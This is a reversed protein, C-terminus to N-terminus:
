AVHDHEATAHRRLLLELNRRLQQGHITDGPGAKTSTYTHASPTLGEFMAESTSFIVLYNSM